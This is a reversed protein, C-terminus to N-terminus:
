KRGLGFKKRESRYKAPDDLSIGAGAGGGGASGTGGLGGTTGSNFLNGFRDPLDKMRKVTDEITLDLEIEEGKDNKDKFKVKPAYGVVTKNDTPDLVEVLRTKPGLFELIQETSVAKHAVAAQLIQNNTVERTYFGRWQDRDVVTKDLSDKFEKEKKALQQKAKEEATQVTSNLNEIRRELDLVQQESLGKQTKLEELQAVTQEVQTKHKRRDEALFRNVDDQTFQKSADTGGAGTGGAGGGTGGATGGAGTGGTGGAGTGGAGGGTGGTGTGGAGGGDGEYVARFPRLAQLIRM